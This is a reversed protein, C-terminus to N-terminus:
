YTNSLPVNFNLELCKRSALYDCMHVFRQMATQPRPLMGKEDWQGMHSKINDMIADYIEKSILNKIDNQEDCFQVVELPHGKTTFAQKGDGKKRGDHLHLSALMIDKELDSFKGTCTDCRYLEYAIWIAGKTHRVLGGVGLAYLPHYKGTTSAAMEYFYDPLVDLMQRTFERINDDQILNLEQEFVQSKGM